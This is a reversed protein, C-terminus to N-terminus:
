SFRDLIASNKNFDSLFVPCMVRLGCYATRNGAMNVRWLCQQAVSFIKIYNVTVPLEVICVSHMEANGSCCHKHSRAVNNNYM